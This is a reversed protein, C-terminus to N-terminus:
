RTCSSTLALVPTLGCHCLCHSISLPPYIFWTHCRIYSTSKQVHDHLSLPKKTAFRLWTAGATPESAHHDESPISPLAAASTQQGLNSLDTITAMETNTALLNSSHLPEVRVLQRALPHGPSGSEYQPMFMVASSLPSFGSEELYDPNLFRGDTNCIEVCAINEDRPTVVNMFGM